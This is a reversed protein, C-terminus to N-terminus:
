KSSDSLNSLLTRNGKDMVWWRKLLVKDEASLSDLDLSNLLGLKKEQIDKFDDLSFPVSSIVGREVTALQVLKDIM